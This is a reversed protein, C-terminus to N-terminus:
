RRSYVVKLISVGNSFVIAKAMAILIKECLFPLDGQELPGAPWLGNSTNNDSVAMERMTASRTVSM